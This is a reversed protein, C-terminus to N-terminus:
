KLSKLYEILGTIANDHFRGAFSPMQPTFGHVVKANPELISERIYDDDITVTSGDSLLEQAGYKGKLTPGTGASGDISHCAACGGRDFVRAGFEAMSYVDHPEHDYPELLVDFETREVVTVKGIMFSHQDGCYETCFFPFTGVQTAQFWLSTYRGPIADKKQRFVPVFFSHIVDKSTLTLRVPVDKPVILADTLIAGPHDSYEFTWSWKQGTVRINIADSPPTVMKMHLTEGWVFVGILILAPIFSWCFELKGRHTIPSTKRHGEAPRRYKVMCFLQAGTVLVFSVACLATIFIFLDDLEQANTSAAPLLSFPSTSMPYTGLYAPDPGLILNLLM